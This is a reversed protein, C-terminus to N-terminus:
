IKEQNVLATAHVFEKRDDPMSSVKFCGGFRVFGGVKFISMNIIGCIHFFYLPHGLQILQSIKIDWVM